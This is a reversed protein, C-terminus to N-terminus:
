NGWSLRQICAFLSSKEDDCFRMSHCKDYHSDYPSIWRDPGDGEEQVTTKLKKKKNSM